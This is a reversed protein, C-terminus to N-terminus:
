ITYIDNSAWLENYNNGGKVGSVGGSYSGGRKHRAVVGRSPLVFKNQRYRHWYYQGVLINLEEGYKAVSRGLVNPGTPSHPDLGYYQNNINRVCEGIADTLVLSNPKSYFFNNAVKWSTQNSNLDRFIVMDFSNSNFHRLKHISLDLYIGGYYNLICYRALDARLAFPKLQEFASLVSRSYCNGLFNSVSETNWLRYNEIGVVKRIRESKRNLLENEPQSSFVIQHVLPHELSFSFTM